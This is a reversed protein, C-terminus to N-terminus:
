HEPGVLDSLTLRNGQKAQQLDFLLQPDLHPRPTAPVTVGLLESLISPIKEPQDTQNALSAFAQVLLAEESLPMPSVTRSGRKFRSVLLVTDHAFQPDVRLQEKPRVSGTAAVSTALLDFIRECCFDVAEELRALAPQVPLALLLWVSPASACLGPLSRSLYDGYATIADPSLAPLGPPFLFLAASAPPSEPFAGLFSKVSTIFAERCSKLCALPSGARESYVGCVLTRSLRQATARDAEPDYPAESVHIWVNPFRKMFVSM